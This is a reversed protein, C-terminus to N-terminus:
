IGPRRVAIDLLSPICVYFNFIFVWWIKTREPVCEGYACGVWDTPQDSASIERPLGLSVSLQRPVTTAPSYKPSCCRCPVQRSPATTICVSRGHGMTPLCQRQQLLRISSGAEEHKKCATETGSAPILDKDRTTATERLFSHRNM